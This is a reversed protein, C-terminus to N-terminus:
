THQPAKINGELTWFKIDTLMPESLKRFQPLLNATDPSLVHRKHESTFLTVIYNSEANKNINLHWPCDVKCSQTNRKNEPSAMKNSTFTGAHRCLFTRKKVDQDSGKKSRGKRYGFGKRKCYEDLFIIVEEWSVFPKGVYLEGIESISQDENTAVEEFGQDENTAVEEFGQDENTEVVEFDNESMTVEEFILRPSNM